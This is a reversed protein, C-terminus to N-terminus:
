RNQLKGHFYCRCCCDWGEDLVGITAMWIGAPNVVVLLCCLFDWYSHAFFCRCPQTQSCHSDSNTHVAASM